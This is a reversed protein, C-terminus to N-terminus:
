SFFKQLFAFCIGLVLFGLLETTFAPHLLQFVYVLCISLIFSILGLTLFRLPLLVLRLLPHVFLELFLLPILVLLFSSIFGHSTVELSALALVEITLYLIVAIGVAHLAKTLM